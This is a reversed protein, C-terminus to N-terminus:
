MIGNNFFFFQDSYKSQLVYDAQIQITCQANRSTVNKIFRCCFLSLVCFVYSSLAVHSQKGIRMWNTCQLYIWHARGVSVPVHYLLLHEAYFQVKRYLFSFIWKVCGQKQVFCVTLEMLFMTYNFWSARMGNFICLCGDCECYMSFLKYM